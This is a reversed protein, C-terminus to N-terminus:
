LVVTHAVSFGTFLLWFLLVGPKVGRASLVMALLTVGGIAGLM